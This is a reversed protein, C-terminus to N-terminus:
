RIVTAAAYSPTWSATVLIFTPGTAQPVAVAVVTDCAGSCTCVGHHADHKTKHDVPADSMAHHSMPMPAAIGAAKAREPVGHHPCPDLGFADATISFCLAVAFLAATIRRLPRLTRVPVM